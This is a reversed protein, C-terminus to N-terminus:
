RGSFTLTASVPISTHLSRSLIRTSFLAVSVRLLKRSHLVLSSSGRRRWSLAWSMMYASALIFAGAKQFTTHIELLGGSRRMTRRQQKIETRITGNSGFLPPDKSPVVTPIADWADM